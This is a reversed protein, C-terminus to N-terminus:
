TSKTGAGSRAANLCARAGSTAAQVKEWEDDTLPREIASEVDERQFVTGAWGNLNALMHYLSMAENASLKEALARMEKAGMKKARM